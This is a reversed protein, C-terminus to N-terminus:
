RGGSVLIETLSSFSRSHNDYAENELLTQVIPNLFTSEHDPLPGGGELFQVVRRMNPRVGPLPDSCLLGLRLVLDVEEMACDGMRPDAVKLIRGRRWNEAVFDVLVIMEEPQHLELPKRGCVVELLFVGFAFIDTAKSATGVVRTMQPDTGHDYLRALGFDGLKAEMDGDLLVNGSKVDRHIIVQEWEEHLYLLASAVGKIIRFRLNRHRIRGVSVIEAVFERMGQRSGHSVKKVAVEKKSGPLFGRYVTGFGGAGLLQKESFGGTAEFLDKYSIRSPGREM